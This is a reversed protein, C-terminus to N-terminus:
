NKLFRMENIQEKYRIMVADFNKSFDDVIVASDLCDYFMLKKLQTNIFKFIETLKFIIFDFAISFTKFTNIIEVIVFLFYVFSIQILHLM